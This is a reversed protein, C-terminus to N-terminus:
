SGTRRSSVKCSIIMDSSCRVTFIVCAAIKKLLSRSGSDPSGAPMQGTAKAATTFHRVTLM